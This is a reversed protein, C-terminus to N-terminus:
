GRLERWLLRHGIKDGCCVAIDEPEDEHSDRDMSAISAALRDTLAVTSLVIRHNRIGVRGDARSYGRWELSSAYDLLDSSNATTSMYM